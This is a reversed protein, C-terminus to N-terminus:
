LKIIWSSDSFLELPEGLCDRVARAVEDMYFDHGAIYGGPKIKAKWDNIDAVVAEYTHDADIYVLDLSHDGFFFTAESGFMQIKKINPYEPLMADFMQEAEKTEKWSYPDVCYLTKCHMSLVRSSVGSFSGVEVVEDKPKIYTECLDILGNVCNNGSVYDLPLMYVRPMLRLANLKEQKQKKDNKM